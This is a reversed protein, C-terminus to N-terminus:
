RAIIKCWVPPRESSGQAGPELITDAGVCPLLFFPALLACCDIPLQLRVATSYLHWESRVYLCSTIKNAEKNVRMEEDSSLISRDSRANHPCATLPWSWDRGPVPSAGPKWDLRNQNTGPYFYCSYSNHRLCSETRQEPVPSIFSTRKTLSFNFKASRANNGPPGTELRSSFWSFGRLLPQM